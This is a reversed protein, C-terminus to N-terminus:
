PNLQGKENFLVADLTKKKPKKIKIPLNFLLDDVFDKSQDTLEELKLLKVSYGKGYPYFYKDLFLNKMEENIKLLEDELVYKFM